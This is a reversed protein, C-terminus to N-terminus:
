DVLGDGTIKYGGGVLYAARGDPDFGLVPLPRKFRHEHLKHKGDYKNSRYVISHVDGGKVLV